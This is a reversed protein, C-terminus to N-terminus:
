RTQGWVLGLWGTPGNKRHDFKLLKFVESWHRHVHQCHQTICWLFFDLHLVTDSILISISTDPEEHFPQPERESYSSTSYRVHVVTVRLVKFRNPWRFPKVWWCWHSHQCVKGTTCVYRLYLFSRWCVGGVLV